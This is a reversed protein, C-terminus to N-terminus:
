FDLARGVSSDIRGNYVDHNSRAPRMDFTGDKTHGHEHQNENKYVEHFHQWRKSLM